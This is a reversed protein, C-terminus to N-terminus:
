DFRIPKAAYRKTKILEDIYEPQLEKEYDFLPMGFRSWKKLVKGDNLLVLGPNDRVVQWLMRDDSEYMQYKPVADRQWKHITQEDAANSIFYFQYGFRQCYDYLDNFYGGAEEGAKKLDPVTVLFTYGEEELIDITVDDGDQDTVYFQTEAELHDNLLVNRTEVYRWVTSDPDDDQDSLELTDTGNTYVFTVKYNQDLADGVKVTTRLDTGEAFPLFDVVPLMYACYSFFATMGVVVPITVLWNWDKHILRFMMKHNFTICLAMALLIINKVLTQTNTLILADGFCGCDSVPNSIVIWITVVTMIMMFVTALAAVRRRRRVGVLLYIGLVTEVLTLIFGALYLLYDPITTFELAGAYDRLKIVLGVPDNAKTFASFLFTIALIFRFINVLVYKTIFWARSRRGKPQKSEKDSGTEDENVVTEDDGDEVVADDVKNEVEETETDDAANDTDQPEADKQLDDDEQQRDKEQLLPEEEERQQADQELGNNESDSCPSDTMEESNGDTSVGETDATATLGEQTMDSKAKEEAPNNVTHKDSHAM